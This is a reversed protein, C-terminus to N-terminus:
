VIFSFFGQGQNSLMRTQGNRTREFLPEHDEFILDNKVPM